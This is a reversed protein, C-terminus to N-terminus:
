KNSYHRGVKTVADKAEKEKEEGGDCGGIRSPTTPAVGHGEAGLIVDTSLPIEGHAFAAEVEDRPRMERHTEAASKHLLEDKTHEFAWAAKDEVSHMAEAIPDAIAHYAKEISSSEISAVHAAQAEATKTAEEARRRADAM